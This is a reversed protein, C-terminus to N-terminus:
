NQLRPDTMRDWMDQALWLDSALAARSEESAHAPCFVGINGDAVLGAKGWGLDLCGGLLVQRLQRPSLERHRQFMFERAAATGIAREGCEACGVLPMAELAALFSREEDPTPLGGGM